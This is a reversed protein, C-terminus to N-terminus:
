GVPWKFTMPTSQASALAEGEYHTVNGQGDLEVQLRGLWEGDYGAQVILTGNEVLPPYLINRSYGGVIVAIGPVQQALQKDRQFGLHSLVIVVDAQAAVEPVYRRAAELPDTISLAAKVSESVVGLQRNAMIMKDANENTLGLVGVKLGDREVITYPLTFLKGTSRYTINASVVAFQAERIREQLEGLELYLEKEGITMADYGLLNLAEIMAKGRTADALTQGTLTNGADLM